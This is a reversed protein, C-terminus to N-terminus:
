KAGDDVWKGLVQRDENTMQATASFGPPPMIKEIVAKTKIKAALPQVQALTTFQHCSVCHKQFVPGAIAFTVPSSAPSPTPSSTAVVPLPPTTAAVPPQTPTATSTAVPQTSPTESRAVPPTLAPAVTDINAGAEIWAGLQQREAATMESADPPMKKRIVAQLRIMNARNQIDTPTDFVVGAEPRTVGPRTPKSSHCSLCRQQIIKQAVAFDVQATTGTNEGNGATGPPNSGSCAILLGLVAVGIGFPNIKM